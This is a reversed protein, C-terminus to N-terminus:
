SPWSPAAGPWRNGTWGMCRRMPRRATMSAFATRCPAAINRRGSGPCSCPKTIASAPRPRSGAPMSNAASATPPPNWSSKPAPCIPVAQVVGAFHGAANPWFAVESGHFLQITKSRGVARTGATGVSYGSELVDFTLEKANAAGTSPQFPAHRHFREVMAFLNSTAEQEHSLIFTQLGGNLSTRHYFRAAIYTSFGQQRAKLLLVRVRGTRRRQAEIRAHVHAQAQNFLLPAIAGSKTKIKLCARAYAPL